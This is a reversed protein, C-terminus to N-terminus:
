QITALYAKLLYPRHDFFSSLGRLSGRAPSPPPGQNAVYWTVHSGAARAAAYEPPEDARNREYETMAVRSTTADTGYTAAACENKGRSCSTTTGHSARTSALTEGLSRAPPQTAAIAGCGLADARAGRSTVVGAM